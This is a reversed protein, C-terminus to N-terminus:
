LAELNRVARKALTRTLAPDFDTGNEVAVDFVVNGALVKIRTGDHSARDGVGDVYANVVDAGAIGRGLAGGITAGQASLEGSEVKARLRNDLAEVGAQMAAATVDETAGAYHEVARQVSRHARINSLVARGGQWSYLCAMAPNAAVGSAAIGVAEAVDSPSLLTCHKGRLAEGSLLRVESQSKVPAASAALATDDRSGCGQIALGAVVFGVALRCRSV